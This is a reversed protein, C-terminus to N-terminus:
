RRVQFRVSQVAEGDVFLTVAHNGPGLPLPRRITSSLPIRHGGNVAYHVGPGGPVAPMRISLPVQQSAAGLHPDLLFVEGDLPAVIEPVSAEANHSITDARSGHIPCTGEM